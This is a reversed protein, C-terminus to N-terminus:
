SAFPRSDETAVSKLHYVPALTEWEAASPFLLNFASCIQTSLLCTHHGGSFSLHDKDFRSELVVDVTTPAPTVDFPLCPSFLLWWIIVLGSKCAPVYIKWFLIGKDPLINLLFSLAQHSEGQSVPSSHQTFVIIKLNVIWHFHQNYFELDPAYLLKFDQSSSNFPILTSLEQPIFNGLLDM